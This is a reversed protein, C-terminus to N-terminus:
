PRNASSISRVPQTSPSMSNVSYIRWRSASSLSGPEPGLGRVYTSTVDGLKLGSEYAAYARQMDNFSEYERGSRDALTSPHRRVSGIGRRRTSPM